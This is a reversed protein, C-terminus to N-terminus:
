TKLNLDYHRQCWFIAVLDMANVIIKQFWWIKNYAHVNLPLRNCVLAECFAMEFSSLIEVFHIENASTSLIYMYLM